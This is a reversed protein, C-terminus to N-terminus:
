SAAEIRARSVRCALGLVAGYFPPVLCAALKAGLRSMDASLLTFTVMWGMLGGLVAGFYIFSELRAWLQLSTARSPSSASPGAADQLAQRLASPSHVSLTAVLPVVLVLLLAWPAPHLWTVGRGGIMAIALAVLFLTLGLGMLYRLM